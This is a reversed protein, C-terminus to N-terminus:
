PILIKVPVILIGQDDIDAPDKFPKGLIWCKNVLGGITYVNQPSDPAMAREIGELIYNITPGGPYEDSARFYVILSVNLITKRPLGISNGRESQQYDEDHEVQFLCPQQEAPIENFLKLRRSIPVAWTELQEYGIPQTFTTTALQAVLANLITERSAPM